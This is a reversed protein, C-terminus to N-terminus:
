GDWDIGTSPDTDTKWELQQRKADVLADRLEVIFEDATEIPFHVSVDFEGVDFTVVVTVVDGDSYTEIEWEVADAHVDASVNGGAPLVDSM